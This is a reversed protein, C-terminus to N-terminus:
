DKRRVIEVAAYRAERIAGPKKVRVRVDRAGFRELCLAALAEALAELLRFRGEIATRRVADALAAYDITKTLDDGRAAAVLDAGIELDIRLPQEQRREDDGTGVICRVELDSIVIRDIM